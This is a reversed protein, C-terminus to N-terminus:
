EEEPAERIQRACARAMDKRRDDLQDWYGMSGLRSNAYDSSFLWMAARAPAHPNQDRRAQEIERARRERAADRRENM